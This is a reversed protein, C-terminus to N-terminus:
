SGHTISKNEINTYDGLEFGAIAASLAVQLASPSGNGPETIPPGTLVNLIQTLLNNTKELQTKLEPTKTLGGFSGGNFKVLGNTIEMSTNGVVCYIASLESYLAIYPVNRKSYMVVVTSGQAPVYLMGDDVEAMLQVGPLNTVATGTVATCDCTRGDIDVADVKCILMYMEDTLHTGALKQISEAIQRDASM